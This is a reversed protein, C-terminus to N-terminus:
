GSYGRLSFGGYGKNQDSTGQLTLSGGKAEITLELDIARGLKDEQHIRMMVIEKAVIEQGDLKWANEIRLKAM